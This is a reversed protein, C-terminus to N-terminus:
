WRYRFRKGEWLHAEVVRAGAEIICDRGVITRRLLAGEGVVAGRSLVVGEEIVASRAVKVGEQERYCYRRTHVYTSDQLLQADPVLPFTWRTVIDRSICHYSRFDQM